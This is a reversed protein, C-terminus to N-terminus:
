FGFVGIKNLAGGATPELIRGRGDTVFSDIGDAKSNALILRKNDWPSTLAADTGSRGNGFNSKGMHAPVCVIDSSGVVTRLRPWLFPGLSVTPNADVCVLAGVRVGEYHIPNKFDAQKSRATYNIGAMDDTGIKYCVLAKSAGEVFYVASHPPTPGCRERVVIGAVFAVAFRRALEQLDTLVTRDFNREGEGRYSVGLNFAEPLVLLSNKADGAEELARELAAKPMSHTSGFHFFGIKQLM